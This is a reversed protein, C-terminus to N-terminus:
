DFFNGEAWRFTRPTGTEMWVGQPLGLAACRENAVVYANYVDVAEIILNQGQANFSFTELTIMPNLRKRAAPRDRSGM